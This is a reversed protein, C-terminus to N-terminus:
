YHHELYVGKLTSNIKTKNKSFFFFTHYFQRFRKSSSGAEAASLLCEHVGRIHRVLEGGREVGEGSWSRRRQGPSDLALLPCRSQRFMAAHGASAARPIRGNSETGVRERERAPTKSNFTQWMFVCTLAPPRCLARPAVAAKVSRARGAAPGAREVLGDEGGAGAGILMGGPAALSGAAM